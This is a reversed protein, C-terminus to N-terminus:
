STHSPDLYTKPPSQVPHELFPVLWQEQQLSSLLLQQLIMFLNGALLVMFVKGLFSTKM